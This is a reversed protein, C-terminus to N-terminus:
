LNKQFSGPGLNSTFKGILILNEGLNRFPKSNVCNLKNKKFKLNRYM